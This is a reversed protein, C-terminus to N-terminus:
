IPECNRIQEKTHNCTIRVAHITAWLVKELVPDKGWEDSDVIINEIQNNNLVSQISVEGQMVGEKTVSLGLKESIVVAFKDGDRIIDCRDLKMGAM